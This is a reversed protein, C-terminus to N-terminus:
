NDHKEFDAILKNEMRVLIGNKGLIDFDLDLVMLEIYMGILNM